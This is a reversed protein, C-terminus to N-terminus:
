IILQQVVSDINDERDINDENNFCEEKKTMRGLHETDRKPTVPLINTHQIRRCGLQFM